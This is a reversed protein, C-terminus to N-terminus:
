ATPATSMIEHGDASVALWVVADRHGEPVTPQAPPAPPPPAM